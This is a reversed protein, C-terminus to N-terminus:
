KNYKAALMVKAWHNMSPNSVKQNVLLFDIVPSPKVTM